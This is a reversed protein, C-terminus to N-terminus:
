GPNRAERLSLLLSRRLGELELVCAPDLAYQLPLFIVAKESLLVYNVGVKSRCFTELYPTLQEPTLIFEELHYSIDHYAILAM